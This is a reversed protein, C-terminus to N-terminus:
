QLKRRISSLDLGAEHLIKAALSHENRLLGLLLHEPRAATSLLLTAEEIAGSVAQQFEKNPVATGFVPSKLASVSPQEGTQEAVRVRTSDLTVGVETLIQQALCNEERLLGLLIHGPIVRQTGAEEAAFTLARKASESFPTALTTPIRDRNPVKLAILKRITEISASLDLLQCLDLEHMVGLLLHETDILPSGTEGAEYRAFFIVRRTKEAYREFM